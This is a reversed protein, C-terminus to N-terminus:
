DVAMGYNDEKNFSCDTFNFKDVPVIYIWSVPEGCRKGNSYARKYGSYFRFKWDTKDDSVM